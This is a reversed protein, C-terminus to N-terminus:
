RSTLRLIFYLLSNHICHQRLLYLYLSVESWTGEQWTYDCAIRQCLRQSKPKRPKTRSCQEDKVPIEPGHNGRRIICEVRRTQIGYGCSKSCQLINQNAALEGCMIVWLPWMQCSIADGDSSVMAISLKGNRKKKWYKSFYCLHASILNYCSRNVTVLYIKDRVNERLRARENM